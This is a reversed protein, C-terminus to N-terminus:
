ARFREIQEALMRRVKKVGLGRRILQSFLGTKILMVVLKELPGLREMKELQQQAQRTRGEERYLLFLDFRNKRVAEEITERYGAYRPEAALFELVALNEEVSKTASWSKGTESRHYNSLFGQCYRARPAFSFLRVWYEWDEHYLTENFWGVREVLRRRSLPSASHLRNGQLIMELKHSTNAFRHPKQKERIQGNVIVYWDSFVIDADQASAIQRGLKEPHLTDDADLFQIWEGKALKLGQNRAYATGSPGNLSHVILEGGSAKSALSVSDDTSGDDVLIIETTVGLQNRVSEIARVITAASNYCPIIVSVDPLPTM